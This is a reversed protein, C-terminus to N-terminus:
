CLIDASDSITELKKGGWPKKGAWCHHGHDDRDDGYISPDDGVVLIIEQV